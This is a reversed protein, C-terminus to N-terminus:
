YEYLLDTHIMYLKVNRQREKILAEHWVGNGANTFLCVVHLLHAVRIHWPGMCALGPVGGLVASVWPISTPTHLEKWNKMMKKVNREWLNWKHFITPSAIGKKADDRKNTTGRKQQKNDVITRQTSSVITRWGGDETVGHCHSVCDETSVPEMRLHREGCHCGEGCSRRRNIASQSKVARNISTTRDNDQAMMTAHNDHQQQQARWHQQQQARWNVSYWMRSM